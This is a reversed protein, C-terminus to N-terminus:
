PANRSLEVFTRSVRSKNIAAAVAPRAVPVPRARVAQHVPEPVAEPVLAHTDPQRATEEPSVGVSMRGPLPESRDAPSSDGAAAAMLETRRVPNQVPVPPTASAVRSAATSWTPATPVPTTTSSTTAHGSRGVAAQRTALTAPPVARAEISKDICQATASVVGSCSRSCAKGSHGQLLTLLIFDPQDTGLNVHVSENFARMATKTPDNWSGDAEGAYCGVRRLERQISATLGTHSDDRDAKPDSRDAVLRVRGVADNSAASTAAHRPASAVARMGKAADSHRGVMADSVIAESRTHAAPPAFLYDAGAFALLPLGALMFGHGFSRWYSKRRRM